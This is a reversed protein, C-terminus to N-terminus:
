WWQADRNHRSSESGGKCWGFMKWSSSFVHCSPLLVFYEVMCYIIIFSFLSCYCTGLALLFLSCTWCKNVVSTTRPGEFLRDVRQRGWHDTRSLSKTYVCTVILDILKNDMYMTSKSNGIISVIRSPCCIKLTGSTPALRVHGLWM